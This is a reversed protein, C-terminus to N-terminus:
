RYRRDTRRRDRPSYSRSRSRDYYSRSRSREFRRRRSDRYPSPSRGNRRDAYDRNYNRTLKGMYRGPTPTHPRQTISYDVRINRGDVELGCCKDKAVRADAVDDFYVFCFGRSRGTQADIVMQIREIPGFKEFIDRIKNEDTYTSLGFIGICRCPRPRQENRRRSSYPSRSHSSRRRPSISRSRSPTQRKKYKRVSRSRTRSRERRKRESSRIPSHSSSKRLPSSRSNERGSMREPM